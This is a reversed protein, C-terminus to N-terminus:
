RTGNKQEKEYEQLAITTSVEEYDVGTDTVWVLTMTGNEDLWEAFKRREDARILNEKEIEKRLEECNLSDEVVDCKEKAICKECKSM